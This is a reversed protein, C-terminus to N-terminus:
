RRLVYRVVAFGCIVAVSITIYEWIKDPIYGGFSTPKLVRTLVAWFSNDSTSDVFDKIDELMNKVNAYSVQDLTYPTMNGGSTNVIVDGDYFVTGNNTTGSNSNDTQVPYMEQEEETPPNYNTAIDNRTTYSNKSKMDKWGSLHGSTTEPEGHWVFYCDYYFKMTNIQEYYEPRLVHKFEKFTYTKADLGYLLDVDYTLVSNNLYTQTTNYKAQYIDRLYTALSLNEETLFERIGISRHYTTDGDSLLEDLRREEKIYFNKDDLPFENAPDCFIRYNMVFSYEDLHSLMYPNLGFSYNFTILDQSVSKIQVKVDGFTNNMGYQAYPEPADPDIEPADPNYIENNAILNNFDYNADAFDFDTDQDTFYTFGSKADSSPIYIHLNTLPVSTPQWQTNFLYLGNASVTDVEVIGVTVVNGDYARARVYGVVFPSDSVVYTNIYGFHGSGQIRYNYLWKQSDASAWSWSSMYYAKRDFQVTSQGITVSDLIMFRRQTSTRDTTYFSSIQNSQSDPIPYNSPTILNNWVGGSLEYDAQMLSYNNQPQTNEELYLFSYFDEQSEVYSGQGGFQTSDSEAAYADIGWFLVIMLASIFAFFRIYNNKGIEKYKM